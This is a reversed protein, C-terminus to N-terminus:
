LRRFMLPSGPQNIYKDILTKLVFMHDSTRANKKFGIQSVDIINNEDLYTDLRTNLIMNFLKGINSNITIGRYNEAQRCDGTKFIPSIYGTAWSAPYIGSSFVLNFLKHLCPLLTSIGSKLMENSVSDLGSAKNNKLKSISKSIESQKIVVDLFNFTIKNDM